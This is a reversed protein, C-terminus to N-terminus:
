NSDCSSLSNSDSFDSTDTIEKVQRYHKMFVKIVRIDRIYFSGMHDAMLQIFKNFPKRMKEYIKGSHIVTGKMFITFTHSIGDEDALTCKLSSKESPDFTSDFGLEPHDYIFMDLKQLNIFFNLRFIINTMSVNLAIDSDNNKVVVCNEFDPKEISILMPHLSFKRSKYESEVQKLLHFIYEAAKGAHDPKKCGAFVIKCDPFIKINIFEGDIMVDITVQNMFSEDTSRTLDMDQDVEVVDKDTLAKKYKIKYKKTPLTGITYSLYRVYRISFERPTYTELEKIWSRKVDRIWRKHIISQNNELTKSTMDLSPFSILLAAIDKQLNRFQTHSKVPVKYKEFSYDALDTLAKSKSLKLIDLLHTYIQHGVEYSKHDVKNALISFLVRLDFHGEIHTCVTQTTIAYDEFKPQTFLEM